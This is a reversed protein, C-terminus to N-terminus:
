QWKSRSSDWPHGDRWHDIAWATAIRPNCRAQESLGHLDLIQFLGRASSNPNKACPDLSSEAKAIRVLIEPNPFQKEKAVEYITQEIESSPPSAMEPAAVEEQRVPDSTPVLSVDDKKNEKQQEIQQMMGWTNDAEQRVQLYQPIAIAYSAGITISLIIIVTLRVKVWFRMLLNKM